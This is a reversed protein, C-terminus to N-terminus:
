EQCLIHYVLQENIVVKIFKKEMFICKPDRVFIAVIIVVPQSSIELNKKHILHMRNAGSNNITTRSKMRWLCESM